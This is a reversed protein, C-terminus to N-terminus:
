RIKFIQTIWLLQYFNLKKTLVPTQVITFMKDILDLEEVNELDQENKYKKMIIGACTDIM